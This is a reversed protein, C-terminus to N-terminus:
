VKEKLGLDKESKVLKITICDCFMVSIVAEGSRYCPQGFAIGSGFCRPCDNNAVSIFQGDVFAISM